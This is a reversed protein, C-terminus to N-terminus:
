KDNSKILMKIDFIIFVWINSDIPIKLNCISFDHDCYRFSTAFPPNIRLTEKIVSSCYKLKTFGDYSIESRFGVVDLIEKKM